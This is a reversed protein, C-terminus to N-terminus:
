RQVILEEYGSHSITLDLYAYASILHSRSSKAGLCLDMWMGLRSSVVEVEDKQSSSFHQGKQSVKRVTELKVGM